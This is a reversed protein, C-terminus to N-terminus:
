CEFYGPNLASLLLVILKSIPLPTTMSWLINRNCILWFDFLIFPKSIDGEPGTPEASTTEDNNDIDYYSNGRCVFTKPFDVLVESATGAEVAEVARLPLVRGVVGTFRSGRSIAEEMMDSSVLYRYPYNATLVNGLLNVVSMVLYPTVTLSFAACGWILLQTGWSQYLTYIAFLAQFLAVYAAAVNYNSTIKSIM